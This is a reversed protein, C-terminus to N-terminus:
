DFSPKALPEGLEGTKRNFSPYINWGRQFNPNKQYYEDLKNNWLDDVKKLEAALDGGERIIQQFVSCPSEVPREWDPLYPYTALYDQAFTTAFETFRTNEPNKNVYGKIVQPDTDIHIGEEYMFGRVEYRSFWKIVEWAELQNRSQKNLNWFGALMMARSKGHFEGDYTPIPAVAWDFEAPFQDNLVGVDWAEGMFMGIRGQAFQARLADNTLVAVGPFLSGDENLKLLLDFVRYYGQMAWKGNKWDWFAPDGNAEAWQSPMWELPWMDAGCYAFGYIKGNGYETIEKAIQRLEDYSGPPKHPDRGIARFLDRNYILRSNFVQIPLAYVHGQYTTLGEIWYWEPWQRKWEEFGPLDDFWTLAGATFPNAYGTIFGSSYLDPGEGRNQAEHFVSWSDDGIIRLSVEIGKEKGASSNFRDVLAQLCNAMHRHHTWMSIKVVPKNKMMIVSRAQLFFEPGILFIFGVLVFILVLTWGKIRM